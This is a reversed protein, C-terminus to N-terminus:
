LNPLWALCQQNETIFESWGLYSTEHPRVNLFVECRFPVSYAWVVDYRQFFCSHSFAIIECSVCGAGTVICINVCVGFLFICRPSVQEANLSMCLRQMRRQAVRIVDSLVVDPTFFFCLCMLLMFWDYSMSLKNM